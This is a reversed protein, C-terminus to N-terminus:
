LFENNYKLNQFHEWCVIFFQHIIYTINSDAAGLNNNFLVVVDPM